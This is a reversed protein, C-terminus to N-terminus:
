ATQPSGGLGAVTEKGLYAAHPIRLHGVDQKLKSLPDCTRNIKHYGVMM